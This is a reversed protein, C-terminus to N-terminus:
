VGFITLNQDAKRRYGLLAYITVCESYATRHAQICHPLQRTSEDAGRISTQQMKHRILSIHSGKKYFLLVPGVTTTNCCQLRICTVTTHVLLARSCATPSTTTVAGLRYSARGFSYVDWCKKGTLRNNISWTCTTSNTILRSKIKVFVSVTTSRHQRVDIFRWIKVICKMCLCLLVM